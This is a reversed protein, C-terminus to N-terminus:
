SLISVHWFEGKARWLLMTRLSLSNMAQFIEWSLAVSINSPQDPTSERGPMDLSLSLVSSLGFSANQIKQLLLLHTTRM